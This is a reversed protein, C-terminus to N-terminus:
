KSSKESQIKGLKKCLKLQTTEFLILVLKMKRCYYENTIALHMKTLKHTFENSRNYKSGCTKRIKYVIVFYKWNFLNEM